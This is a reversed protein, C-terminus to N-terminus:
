SPGVHSLGLNCRKQQGNIIATLRNLPWYFHHLYNLSTGRLATSFRRAGAPLDRVVPVRHHHRSVRAGHLPRRRVGLPQPEADGHDVALLLRVRLLVVAPVRGRGEGGLRPEDHAGAELHQRTLSRSRPTLCNPTARNM